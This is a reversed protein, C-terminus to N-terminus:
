ATEGRNMPLVIHFTAGGTANNEARISGGHSHVIAQSLSLGLGLGNEKTSFFPEFLRELMEPGFGTGTDCVSLHYEKGAPGMAGHATISLTGGNGGAAEISELANAFLNLLLQQLQVDDGLVTSAYEDTKVVPKVHITALANRVLGLVKHILLTMDVPKREGTEKRLLQRLHRIVDGARSDDDIIDSIAERLEAVNLPQHSLMRQIAQANSLIATLPQNLEHALAGSLEGVARVRTLHILSQRQREIMSQMWVSETVDVVTGEVRVIEGADDLESRGHCRLWRAPQKGDVALRVKVDFRGDPARRSTVASQLLPLDRPDILSAIALKDYDAAAPLGLIMRTQETVRVRDSAGTWCWLGTDGADVAYAMHDRTQSLTRDLKRNRDSIVIASVLALFQLGLVLSVVLLKNDGIAGLGLAPVGVTGLLLTASLLFSLTAALIWGSDMSAMISRAEPVFPANARQARSNGTAALSSTLASDIRGELSPPENHRIAGVNM